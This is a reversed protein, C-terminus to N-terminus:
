RAPGDNQGAMGYGVTRCRGRNPVKVPNAFGRGWPLGGAQVSASAPLAAVSSRGPLARSCITIGCLEGVRAEIGETVGCARGWDAGWRAQSQTLESGTRPHGAHSKKM